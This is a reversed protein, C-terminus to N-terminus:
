PGPPTDPQEGAETKEQATKEPPAETLSIFFVTKSFACIDRNALWAGGWFFFLNCALALLFAGLYLWSFRRRAPLVTKTDPQPVNHGAESSAEKAKLASLKQHWPLFSSPQDGGERSPDDALIGSSARSVYGRFHQM